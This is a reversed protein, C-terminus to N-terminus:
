RSYFVLFIVTVCAVRYIIDHREDVRMLFRLLNSVTPLAGNKECPIVLSTINVMADHVRSVSAKPKRYFFSIGALNGAPLRLLNNKLGVKLISKNVM